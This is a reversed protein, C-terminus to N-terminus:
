ASILEEEQGSTLGYEEAGGAPMMPMEGPTMPM